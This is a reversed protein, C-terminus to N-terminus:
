TNDTYQYIIDITKIEANFDGFNNILEKLYLLKRLSKYKKANKKIKTFPLHSKTLLGKYKNLNNHKDFYNPEDKSHLANQNYIYMENSSANNNYYLIDGKKITTNPLYLDKICTLQIYYLTQTM